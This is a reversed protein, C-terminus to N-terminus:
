IKFKFFVFPFSVFQLSKRGLVLGYFLSYLAINIYNPNKYKIYHSFKVVFGDNYHVFITESMCLINKLIIPENERLGSEFMLNQEDVSVGKKCKWHRMSLPKTEFVNLFM